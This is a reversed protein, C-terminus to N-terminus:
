SIYNNLFNAVDTTDIRQFCLKDNFRCETDGHRSCPRCNMLSSFIRIDVKDAFFGFGEITPGMLVATPINLFSSLHAMASDSALVADANHLIDPLENLEYKGSLDEIDIKNLLFDKIQGCLLLDNQGGILIYKIKKSSILQDAISAIIEISPYKSHHSAGPAIVVTKEEKRKAETIHKQVKIQQKNVQDKLNFHTICKQVCGTMAAEVHPQRYNKIFTFKFNRGKFRNLMVIVSRKISRKNWSFVPIRFKMWLLIGILISKSNRHLDIFADAHRLNKRIIRYSRYFGNDDIDITTVDSFFHKLLQLASGSGIYFVNINYLQLLELGKFSLIVDGIGKTRYILINKSNNEKIKL